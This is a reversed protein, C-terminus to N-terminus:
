FGVKKPSVPPAPAYEKPYTATPSSLGTDNASVRPGWDKQIQERRARRTVMVDKNNAIQQNLFNRNLASTKSTDLYQLVGLGLKGIDLGAGIAGGLGTAGKTGGYNFGDFMGKEQIKNDLGASLGVSDYTGSMTDDFSKFYNKIDADAQAGTYMSGNTASLSKLMGNTTHDTSVLENAKPAMLYKGLGFEDM